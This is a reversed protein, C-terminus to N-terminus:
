SRWHHTARVGPHTVLIRQNIIAHAYAELFEHRLLDPLDNGLSSLSSNAFSYRLTDRVQGLRTVDVGNPGLLVDFPIGLTKDGSLLLVQYRDINCSARTRGVRTNILPIPSYHSQLLPQSPSVMETSIRLDVNLPPLHSGSGQESSEQSDFSLESITM